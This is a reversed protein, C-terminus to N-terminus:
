RRPIVDVIRGGSDLVHIPVNLIDDVLEIKVGGAMRLMATPLTYADSGALNVRYGMDWFSATTVESLPNEVGGNLFGTLLETEFVSERWHSDRTGSGGMNEVPVKEGLTYDAGGIRDFAEIARTGTFHPDDGGGGTLLGLVNWLTGLGIVHGMEHLIVDELHGAGEINALDAEDFMMLGVITLSSSARIFCPGAQGLISGPGDISDVTAFILLDDIDEDIAPSNDGCTSDPVTVRLNPLDGFILQEWRAKANLFALEQSATVSSLFRVDINYAQTAGTATFVTDGATAETANLTNPGPTTGLTWSGVTAVGSADTQAVAGTVSGGGSTVTFTVTANPTPIGSADTVRVAPPINVAFGVLGTQGDGDHIAINAPTGPMVATATFISDPLTGTRVRLTDQGADPGLTWRTAARGDSGTNVSDPAASGSGIPATFRVPRGPVPNAFADLVRVVVSDPLTTGVGGTQADGRVKEISQPPGALATATFAPPLAVGARSAQVRHSTGSATGLTFATSADGQADTMVSPSAVSGNGAVVAFTVTQAAVPQGLRDLLRIVLPNPLAQGVTDTQADGSVKQLSTGVQAVTVGVSASLGSSTSTVRVDTTGNGAATVLGNANVTVVTEDDSSWTIPEDPMPEGGQDRVEGSLQQTAGIADLSVTTPNVVVSTPTPPDTTDCGSLKLAILFLSGLFAVRFRVRSHM